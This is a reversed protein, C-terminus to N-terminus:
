SVRRAYLLIRCSQSLTRRFLYRPTVEAIIRQVPRPFTLNAWSEMLVRLANKGRTIHETSHLRLPSKQVNAPVIARLMTMSTEKARAREREREREREKESESELDPFSIIPFNDQTVM